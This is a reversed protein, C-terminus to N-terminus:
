LAAYHFRFRIAGNRKLIECYPVRDRDVTRMGTRQTYPERCGVAGIPTSQRLCAHTEIGKPGRPCQSTLVSRPRLGFLMSKTDPIELSLTSHPKRFRDHNVSSVSM